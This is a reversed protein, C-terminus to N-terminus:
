AVNVIINQAVANKGDSVTVKVTKKGTSTFVRQISSGTIYKENPSFEWTYTLKDNNDDVARVFLTVPQNVKAAVNKSYDLIRPPVSVSSIGAISEQPIIDYAKYTTTQRRYTLNVKHTVFSVKGFQSNGSDKVIVNISDEASDTGDSVTVKVINNGPGDFTWLYIDGAKYKQFLGFDWTYSLQDNDDDVAEVKLTVPQSTNVVLNNTMSVIRPARNKDSIEIKPTQKEQSKGDSAAFVVGFAKTEKKGAVDYGPKWTFLNGNLSSGTPPNEVSFKIDDGDPDSAELLISISDGENAKIDNIKKFIPNRNYSNVNIAVIKSTELIGDSATVKATHTGVDNFTTKYTDSNMFGSYRLSVKDGDPDYANPEIKIADGANVDIDRIDELVPARNVDKVTIVVNQDIKIDRSSATFKIYANKGLVSFKDIFYDVVGEKRVFDFGPKWTFVDGDLKAGDPLSDGSFDITDGDPDESKLTIKIEQGENIVRNGISDFSTARDADKVAVKVIKEGSFGKGDAHVRVDYSGSDDYTTQWENDDGIPESITYRLGYKAFDPINLKATEGENVTIDKIADFIGEVDVNSVDVTWSKTVNFMGDSVIFVVGHSGSGRYTTEYRYQQGTGIKKGDLLWTYTLIDKNLDSASVGFDASDGENIRVPDQKPAYDDIAPPEEKRNVVLLIDRSDTSIGDSVTIASKYQGADGYTTQWEGSSNLPSTYTTTLRDNDPDTANPVLSIRDTEKYVFTTISYAFYPFALFIILFVIINKNM